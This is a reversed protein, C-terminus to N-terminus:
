MRRGRNANRNSNAVQRIYQRQFKQLQIGVGSVFGSFEKNNLMLPATRHCIKSAVMDILWNVVSVPIRTRYGALENHRNNGHWDYYVMERWRALDSLHRNVGQYYSPFLEVLAGHSPVFAVHALGAGHMGILVDTDAITQLQDKMPLTDIQVGRVVFDPHSRRVSALIEEENEIKRQIVGSPNRPHAVYDRRWVFTVVMSSCNLTRNRREVQMEELFFTRFEEMFPPSPGSHNDKILSNYGQIGWVLDSFFTRIPLESLFYVRRFLQKWADDLHGKPHADVFLIDTENPTKNFFKMVIFANYWDTLTHYLNAYEHRTIAITFRNEVHNLSQPSEDVDRTKMSTLWTNLYNNNSRFKYFPSARPSKLDVDCKMQFCDSLQQYYEANEPQDIVKDVQEGGRASARCYNRDIIVHTLRAFENGYLELRNRCTTQKTQKWQQFVILDFPNPQISSTNSSTNVSVYTNAVSRERHKLTLEFYGALMVDASIPNVAGSGESSETFIISEEQNIPVHGVFMIVGCTVVVCLFLSQRCHRGLHRYLSHFGIGAHLGPNMTNPSTHELRCSTSRQSDAAHMVYM